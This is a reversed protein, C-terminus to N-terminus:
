EDDLFDKVWAISNLSLKCNVANWDAVILCIFCHM